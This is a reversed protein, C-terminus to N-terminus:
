AQGFYRELKTQKRDSFVPEASVASLQQMELGGMTKSSTQPAKGSRKPRIPKRRPCRRGTQHEKPDDPADNKMKQSAEKDEEKQSGGPRGTRLKDADMFKLLSSQTMKQSTWTQAKTEQALNRGALDGRLMEPPRGEPFRDKHGNDMERALLFSSISPQSMRHVTQTELNVDPAVNREGLSSSDQHEDYDQDLNRGALNHDEEPDSKRGM